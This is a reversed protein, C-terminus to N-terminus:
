PRHRYLSLTGDWDVTLGVRGRRVIAQQRTEVLPVIPRALSLTALPVPDENRVLWPVAAILEAAAQCHAAVNRPLEIVYALESGSRIADDFAAPDLGLALLRTGGTSIATAIDREIGLPELIAEDNSSAALAVLREALDRAVLDDTQYVIHAIGSRDAAATIPLSPAVTTVNCTSLDTWWHPADAARAESRVADRALEELRHRPFGSVDAAAAEEIQGPRTSPVRLPSAVVHIRDWVIPIVMYNPQTRAYDLARPDRTVLLDHGQDIVDRPDEGSRLAFRIPPHDLMRYGRAAILMIAGDSRSAVRYPGTGAPWESAAFAATVALDPSAFLLPISQYPRDLQIVLETAGAIYISDPEIGLRRAAGSTWSAVVRDATVRSGDSFRADRRLQFRWKWGGDQSSWDDALAPRPQGGCDVSILAEYLHRYVM